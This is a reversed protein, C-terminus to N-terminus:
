YGPCGNCWPGTNPVILNIQATTTCSFTHCKMTAKNVFFKDNTLDNAQNRFVTKSGCVNDFSDFAGITTCYHGAKDCNSTRTYNIHTGVLTTFRHCPNFLYGVVNCRGLTKKKSNNELCSILSYMHNKIASNIISMNDPNDKQAFIIQKINEGDIEYEFGGDDTKTLTGGELISKDFTFPSPDTYEETCSSIFVFALLMFLLKNM